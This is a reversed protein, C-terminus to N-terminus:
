IMLFLKKKCRLLELGKIKNFEHFYKRLRHKSSTQENLTDVIGQKIEKALSLSM